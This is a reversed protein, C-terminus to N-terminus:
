LLIIIMKTKVAREPFAPKKKESDAIDKGNQKGHLAIRFQKNVLSQIEIRYNPL